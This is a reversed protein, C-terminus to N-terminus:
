DYKTCGLNIERAAAEVASVQHAVKDIVHSQNLHLQGIERLKQETQSIYQQFIAEKGNNQMHIAGLLRKLDVVKASFGMVKLGKSVM